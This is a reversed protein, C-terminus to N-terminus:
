ETLGVHIVGVGTGPTGTFTVTDGLVTITDAEMFGTFHIGTNSQFQVGGNPAYVDGTWSAAGGISVATAANAGSYLTVNSAGAAPSFQVTSSNSTIKGGNLAIFTYGRLDAPALAAGITIGVAGGSTSCYIGPPHYQPSAPDAWDKNGNNIGINWQNQVNQPPASNCMSTVDPIPKVWCTDCRRLAQTGGAPVGFAPNNVFFNNNNCHGPVAGHLALDAINSSGSSSPSYYDNSWTASFQNSSGNITFGQCNNQVSMAYIVLPECGTEGTQCPTVRAVASASAKLNKVGIASALKGFPDTVNQTFRVQIRSTDGNYPTQYCNTDANNACAHIGSTPGGNATSYATIVSTVNADCGVLLNCPSGFPDIERAAALAAADAAGQLTRRKGFMHTGDIVLAAIGLLLPIVVIVFIIAQGEEGSLRRSHM